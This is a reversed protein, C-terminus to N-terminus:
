SENMMEVIEKRSHVDLKAYIHRIHSKATSNSVVLAEEIEAISKDQALLALVEEERQTLGFKHAVISCKGQLTTWFENTTEGQESPRPNIGWTSTFDKDSLFFMACTVVLVIAFAGLVTPNALGQSNLWSYGQMAIVSALVRFARTFGFLWIATVGYTYSINSLVILTLIVFGSFGANILLSGMGSFSPFYSILLFGAVILPPTAKYLMRADFRKFRVVNCALVVLAVLLMGVMSIDTTEFSISRSLASAFAYVALLVSPRWPFSWHAGASERAEEIQNPLLRRSSVLLMTSLTPLIAILAIRAIGDLPSVAFFLLAAVVFSASYFISAERRPLSSYLESWLLILLAIGAGVCANGVIFVIEAAGNSLSAFAALFTGGTSLISAAWSAAPRASLPAIRHAFLACALLCALNVLNSIVMSDIAIDPAGFVGTTYHMTFLWALYLGNGLFRLPLPQAGLLLREDENEHTEM